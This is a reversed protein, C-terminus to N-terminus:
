VLRNAVVIKQVVCRQLMTAVNNQISAVNNWCQLATNRWIDDDNRITGHLMVNLGHGCSDPCTQLRMNKIRFRTSQTKFWQPCRNLFIRNRHGSESTEQPRFASELLFSTTEFKGPNTHVAGLVGLTKKDFVYRPNSFTRSLPDFSFRM